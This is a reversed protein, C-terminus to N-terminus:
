KHFMLFIVPGGGDFRKFAHHKYCTADVYLYYNRLKRQLYVFAFVNVSACVSLTTM